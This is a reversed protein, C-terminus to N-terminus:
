ELDRIILEALEDVPCGAPSRRVQVVEVHRAVAAVAGFHRGQLDFGALLQAGHTVRGLAAFVDQGALRTLRAGRGVTADEVLEYLRRLPVEARLGDVPTVLKDIGPALPSVAVDPHRALADPWLKAYPYAPLVAPPAAGDLRVACIDDSVFRAGAARLVWALTSKGVGSRGAFAVAGGDGDAVASAHLVLLGRLHLVATMVPGTLRLALSRADADPEADVDVRDGDRV